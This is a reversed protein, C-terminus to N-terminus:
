SDKKTQLFDPIKLSKQVKQKQDNVVITLWVNGKRQTLQLMFNNIQVSPIEHKEYM